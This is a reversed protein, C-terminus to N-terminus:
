ALYPCVLLKASNRWINTEGAANNEAELLKKAAGENSPGVVLLTGQLGLVKGYDGKRASLNLRAAEYNVDSLTQKSGYALQWLGVGAAMRGDLGYLFEKRHFVNPDKVDDLGVLAMARRPQYIFPKIPRSTDLLMWPAGAGGGTNSVSTENGNEDLVPHDSDFFYQGDYCITSFADKMLAFVLEDPFIGADYGFQQFLPAYQGINDDEIDNRQVAITSEYDKNEISFGHSKLKNVVRDGVWERIRPFQGLWGYKEDKGSSPVTMAVQEYSPTVAAKAGDFLAHFGANLDSLTEANIPKVM